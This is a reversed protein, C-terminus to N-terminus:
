DEVKRKAAALYFRSKNIYEKTHFKDAFEKEIRNISAPIISKTSSPSLSVLLENFNYEDLMTKRLEIFADLEVIFSKLENSISEGLALDERIVILEETMAPSLASTLKEVLEPNLEGYESLSKAGSLLKQISKESEAFLTLWMKEELDLVAEKFDAWDEPDLWLAPLMYDESFTLYNLELLYSNPSQVSMWGKVVSKALKNNRFFDSDFYEESIPHKKDKSELIKQVNLATEINPIINDLPTDKLSIQSDTFEKTFPINNM